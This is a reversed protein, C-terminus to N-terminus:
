WRRNARFRRPWPNHSRTNPSPSRRETEAQKPTDKVQAARLKKLVTELESHVPLSARVALTNGFPVVRTNKVDPSLVILKEALSDASEDGTLLDSVDHIRTEIMAAAAKNTTLMLVEDRIVYTLDLEDLILRLASALTIGDLARTIPDDESAAVQGLAKRDTQVEIGHREKIIEPLEGLPVRILELRTPEALAARIRQEATTKTKAKSKEGALLGTSTSVLVLLAVFVSLRTM